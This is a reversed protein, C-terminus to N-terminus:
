VKMIMEDINHPLQCQAVVEAFREDNVFAHWNSGATPLFQGFSAMASHWKVLFKEYQRLIQILVLPTDIQLTTLQPGEGPFCEVFSAQIDENELRLDIMFGRLLADLDGALTFGEFSDLVYIYPGWTGTSYKDPFALARFVREDRKM